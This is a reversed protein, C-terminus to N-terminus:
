TQVDKAGVVKLPTGCKRKRAERIDCHKTRKMNKANMSISKKRKIQCVPDFDGTTTCEFRRDVVEATTV